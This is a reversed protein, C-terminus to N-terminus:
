ATEKKQEMADAIRALQVAIVALCQANESSVNLGMRRIYEWIMEKNM